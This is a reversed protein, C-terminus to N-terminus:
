EKNGFLLGSEYGTLGGQNKTFNGLLGMPNARQQQMLLGLRQSNEPLMLKSGARNVHEGAVGEAARLISNMISVKRDVLGPGTVKGENLTRIVEPMGSNEMAKSADMRDLPSDIKTRAASYDDLYKSWGKGGAKEIANDLYQKVEQLENASLRKALDKNEGSMREILDNIGTKRLTYISEAPITGDPREARKLANEVKNLVLRLTDNTVNTPTTKISQINGIISDATLPKLGRAEWGGVLNEALRAQSGAKLSAEAAADMGRDATLALSASQRPIQPGVTKLQTTALPSTYASDYGTAMSRARELRRLDDVASAAEDAYSGAKRETGVIAQSLRNAENLPTSRAVETDIGLQKIAGKKAAEQIQLNRVYDEPLRNSWEKQLASFKPNVLPALTQSATEFPSDRGGTALTAAALDADEGGLKTAIKAAGKEAQAKSMIPAVMNGIVRTAGVVAPNVVSGLASGGATAEMKKRLDDTGLPTAAGGAAGVAAGTAMLEPLTKAAQFAKGLKLFAPSMITGGIDAAVGAGQMLPSQGQKGEEQLQKLTQNNEAFFKGAAGPLWEGAGMVPSGAAIAFRMLPNAALSAAGSPEAQTPESTSEPSATPSQSQLRLRAAAMAMARKQDLTMEEM